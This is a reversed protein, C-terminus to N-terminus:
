FFRLNVKQDYPFREDNKQHLSYSMALFNRAQAAQGTNQYVHAMYFYVDPNDKEISLSKQFFLFAKETQNLGLLALGAYYYFAGRKHLDERAIANTAIVWMKDYQGLAHLSALLLIYTDSQADITENDLSYRFAPSAFIQRYVTSNQMIILTLQPNSTIAKLLYELAQPYMGKKYYIVGLNYNSLFVNQGHLLATSKFLAVSKEQQGTYYDVFGLLQQGVVDDPMFRLILEFYHKYPEWDVEQNGNLHKSFHIMPAFDPIADNLHRVKIRMDLTKLDVFSLCFVFVIVYIVGVRSFAWRVTNLLTKLM